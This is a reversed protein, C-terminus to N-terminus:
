DRYVVSSGVQLDLSPLDNQKTQKWGSTWRGLSFIVLSYSWQEVVARLLPSLWSMEVFSVTAQCAHTKPM